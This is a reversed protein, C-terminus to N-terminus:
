SPRFAIRPLFVPHGLMCNRACPPRRMDMKLRIELRIEYESKVEHYSVPRFRGALGAVGARADAIAVLTLTGTLLANGQLRM